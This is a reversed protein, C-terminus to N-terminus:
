SLFSKKCIPRELDMHFRRNHTMLSYKSVFTKNCEVCCAREEKKIKNRHLRNIHDSLDKQIHFKKQCFDCEYKREADPKHREIHDRLTYKDPLLKKCIKCMYDAPNSHVDSHNVVSKRTFFQKNCCRVYGRTGHKAEYHDTMNKFIEFSPQPECLECFLYKSISVMKGHDRNRRAHFEKHHQTLDLSSLFVGACIQCEYPGDKSHEQSMHQTLSTKSRFGKSCYHCVFPKQESMGEDYLSVQVDEEKLSIVDHDLDNDLYEVEMEDEQKVYLDDNIGTSVIELDDTTTKIGTTSASELAKQNKQVVDIFEAIDNVRVHCEPCLFLSFNSQKRRTPVPNFRFISTIREHLSTDRLIEVLEGNENGYELSVLCLRCYINDSDPGPEM